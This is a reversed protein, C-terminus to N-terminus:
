FALMFFTFVRRHIGNRCSKHMQKHSDRFHRLIEDRMLTLSAPALECCSSRKPGIPTEKPEGYKSFPRMCRHRLISSSNHQIDQGLYRRLLKRYRQRDGLMAAHCVPTTPIQVARLPRRSAPMGLLGCCAPFRYSPINLIAPLNGMAHELQHEVVLLSLLSRPKSPIYSLDM